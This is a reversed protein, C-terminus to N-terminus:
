KDLQRIIMCVDEPDLYNGVKQFGSNDYLRILAGKNWYWDYRYETDENTLRYKHLSMEVPFGHAEFLDLADYRDFKRRSSRSM